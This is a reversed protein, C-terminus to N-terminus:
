TPSAFQKNVVVPLHTPDVVLSSWFVLCVSLRISASYQRTTKPFFSLERNDKQQSVVIVVSRRVNVAVCSAPREKGKVLREKQRNM